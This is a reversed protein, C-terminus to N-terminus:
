QSDAGVAVHSNNEEMMPPDHDGSDLEEHVIIIM